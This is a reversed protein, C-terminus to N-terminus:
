ESSRLYGKCLHPMQMGNFGWVAPFALCGINDYYSLDSRPATLLNTQINRSFPASIILHCLLVSCTHFEARTVGARDDEIVLFFSLTPADMMGRPSM